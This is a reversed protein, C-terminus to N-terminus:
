KEKRNTNCKHIKGFSDESRTVGPIQAHSTRALLQVQLSSICFVRSECKKCWHEMKGFVISQRCALERLAADGM